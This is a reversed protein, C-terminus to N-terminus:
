RSGDEDRRALARVLAALGIGLIWALPIGFFAFTIQGIRPDDSGPCPTSPYQFFCAQQADYLSAIAQIVLLVAVALLALTWLVLGRVWRSRLGGM